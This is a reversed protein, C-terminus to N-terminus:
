GDLLAEELEKVFVGKVSPPGVEKTDPGVLATAGSGSATAVPGFEDGSTKVVIVDATTGLSGLRTAGSGSATALQAEILQKVEAAQVLALKSGRTGIRVVTM